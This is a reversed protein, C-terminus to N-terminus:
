QSSGVFLPRDLGLCNPPLRVLAVAGNWTEWVSHFTEVEVALSNSVKKVLPDVELDSWNEM